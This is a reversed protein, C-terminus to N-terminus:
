DKKQVKDFLLNVLGITISEFPDKVNYPNFSDAQREFDFKVQYLPTRKYFINENNTFHKKYSKSSPDYLVLGTNKFKLEEFILISYSELPYSNIYNIQAVTKSISIFLLFVILIYKLKIM